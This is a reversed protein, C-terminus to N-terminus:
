LVEVVLTLLLQVFDVRVEVVLLMPLPEVAAEAVRLLLITLL